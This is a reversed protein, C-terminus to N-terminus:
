DYYYTINRGIVVALNYMQCHMPCDLPLLLRGLCSGVCISAISWSSNQPLKLVVHVSSLFLPFPLPFSLLSLSLFLSFLSPSSFLSSLPLPFSLLSLSLFLSFLSPSSFLSSLSFLFKLFTCLLFLKSSSVVM